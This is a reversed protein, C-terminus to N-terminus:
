HEFDMVLVAQGQRATTSVRDAIRRLLFGGLRRVGADDSMIEDDSPRHLPLEIPPGEWAVRLRVNFEDFSVSAEIPGGIGHDRLTEVAQVVAFRVREIVERRAGWSAGLRLMWADVAEGDFGGAAIRLRETRAVGIRFVLNLGLGVLTGLVLPTGFMAQASPSLLTRMAPVLEVSLGAVVGLGVVLTRRADLMRSAAIQLGNVLMFAASFVLTAGMVAPPLRQLWYGLMPVLAIVACTAAIVWAVRRSHMATATALGTSISSSNIATGGLLGSLATAFGDALVGGSVGGMDARVWRPDCAKQLIVVNGATKLTAAMAGVAFPLLLTADFRWGLHSLSPLSLLATPTASAAPQVSLMCAVGVGAAGGILVCCVQPLGRTWVNCIVITALTVAAITVALSAPMSADAAILRVGVAGSTIGIMLVVVGALEPPFLPRLRRMLPALAIEVLGAVLLMGFVLPLGGTKAAAISPALYVITANPWCLFGSGVPGARFAQLLTGLASALLTLSVMAAITDADAGAAQGILVPYALLAASAAVHQLGSPLVLLWPPADLPGWWRAALASTEAPGTAAQSVDDPSATASTPM